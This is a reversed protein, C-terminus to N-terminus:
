FLAEVGATAGFTTEPIPLGHIHTRLGNHDIAQVRDFASGSANSTVGGHLSLVFGVRDEVVDLMAGLAATWELFVGSREFSRYRPTTELEPAVLRSWAVGAGLFLRARETVRLTPELRSGLSTVTVDPQSAEVPVLSGADVGVSHDGRTFYIRLGLFDLLEARAHGGWFLGHLYRVDDRGSPRELVAMDLGVSIWRRRPAEPPITVPDLEQDGAKPEALPPAATVADDGEPLAEAEKTDSSKKGSDADDQQRPADKPKRKEAAVSTAACCLVLLLPAVSRLM